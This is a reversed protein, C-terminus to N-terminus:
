VIRFVYWKFMKVLTSTSCLLNSLSSFTVFTWLKVPKILSKKLYVIMQMTTLSNNNNNENENNENSNYNNKKKLEEELLATM